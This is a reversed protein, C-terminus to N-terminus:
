PTPTIISNVVGASAGSGSPMLGIAFTVAQQAADYLGGIGLDGPHAVAFARLAHLAKDADADAAKLKSYLGPDYCLATLKAKAGAACAGLDHYAVLPVLVGTDYANELDYIKQQSIQTGAALSEVKALTQCASLALGLGLLLGLKVVSRTVRKHNIM